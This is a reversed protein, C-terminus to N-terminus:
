ANETEVSLGALVDIMEQPMDEFSGVSRAIATVEVMDSAGEPFVGLVVREELQAVGDGDEPSLNGIMLHVGAVGGADTTGKIQGAYMYEPDDSEEVIEKLQQTFEVETLGQQAVLTIMADVVGNEPRRVLVATQLAAIGADQVATAVSILQDALVDTTDEVQAEVRGETAAAQVLQSATARAWEAADPLGNPVAHWSELLRLEFGVIQRSM